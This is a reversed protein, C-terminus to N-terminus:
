ARCLGLSQEVGCQGHGGHHTLPAHTGLAQGGARGVPQAFIALTCQAGHLANAAGCQGHHHNVKGVACKLVGNGSGLHCAEKVFRAVAVFRSCAARHAVVKHCLAVAQKGRSELYHGVDFQGAAIDVVALVAAVAAGVGIGPLKHNVRQGLSRFHHVKTRVAGWAAGIHWHNHEHKRPRSLLRRKLVAVAVVQPGLKLLATEAHVVVFVLYAGVKHAVFQQLSIALAGVIHRSGGYITHAKKGM